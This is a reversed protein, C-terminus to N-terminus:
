IFEQNFIINMHNFFVCHSLYFHKKILENKFLKFFLNLQIRMTILQEFQLIHKIIHCCVLEFLTNLNM